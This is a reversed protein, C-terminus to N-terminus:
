KSEEKLEEVLKPPALKTVESYKQEAEARSPASITIAFRGSQAPFHFRILENDQQGRMMKDKEM